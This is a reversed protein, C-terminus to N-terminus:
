AAQKERWERMGLREEITPNRPHPSTPMHTEVGDTMDQLVIMACQVERHTEDVRGIYFPKETFGLPTLVHAQYYQRDRIHVHKVLTMCVDGEGYKAVAMGAQRGVSDQFLITYYMADELHPRVWGYPTGYPFTQSTIQIYLLM